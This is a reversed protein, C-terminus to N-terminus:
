IFSGKNLIQKNELTEFNIIEVFDENQLGLQVTVKEFVIKNNTKNKLVMVVSKGDEELISEVPLAKKTKTNTIIEAEVYMGVLFPNNEETLHAHVKATRNIEDIASGILDVEAKYIKNSNEPLKFKIEQGKELNLVDKEFVVLELHKKNNNIIELVVDSVEVYKGVSANVKSITGTIPAYIPIISTFKGNKANKVSINLLRLQQELGNNIALTSKYISEAELFKKKSTINESLM